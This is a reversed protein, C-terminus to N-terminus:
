GKQLAARTIEILKKLDYPKGVIEHVPEEGALPQVHRVNTTTVVIPRNKLHESERVHCFLRWNAEYPIGIDYIVVDPQHLRLFGGLDVHGDRVDFTHLVMAVFGAQEFALRLMDTTDPSTNVILVAPPHEAM